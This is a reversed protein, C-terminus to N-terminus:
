ISSLTETDDISHLSLREDVITFSYSVFFRADPIEGFCCLEWVINFLHGEKKSISGKWLDVKAEHSDGLVDHPMCVFSLLLHVIIKSM